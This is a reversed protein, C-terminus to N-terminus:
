LGDSWHGEPTLHPGASEMRFWLCSPIPCLPAPFAGPAALRAVGGARRSGITPGQPQSRARTSPRPGPEAHRPLRPAPGPRRPPRRFPPPGQSVADLFTATVPSEPELPQKGDLDQAPEKVAGDPKECLDETECTIEIPSPLFCPM